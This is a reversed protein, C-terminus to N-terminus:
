GLPVSRDPHHQMTAKPQRRGGLGESQLCRLHPRDLFQTGQALLSPNARMMVPLQTKKFTSKTRFIM